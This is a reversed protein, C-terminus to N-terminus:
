GSEYEQAESTVWITFFRGAIHSVQTRDRPQSSGRSSPIAIGDLIRAQLIGMSLPAQHAICDMPNCLTSCSQAVLCLVILWVPNGLRRLGDVAKRYGCDEMLTCKFDERKNLIFREPEEAQRQTEALCLYQYGAGKNYCAWFLYDKSTRMQNTKIEM